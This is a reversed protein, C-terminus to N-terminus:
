TSDGLARDLSRDFMVAVQVAVEVLTSKTLGAGLASICERWRDCWAHASGIELRVAGRQHHHHQMTPLKGAKQDKHISVQGEGVDGRM